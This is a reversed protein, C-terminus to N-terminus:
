TAEGPPVATTPTGKLSTEVGMTFYDEYAKHKKGKKDTWESMPRNICWRTVILDLDGEIFTWSGMFYDLTKDGDVDMDGKKADPTAKRGNSDLPPCSTSNGGRSPPPKKKVVLDAFSAAAGSAMLVTLAFRRFGARQRVTVTM